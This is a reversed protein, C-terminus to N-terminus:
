FSSIWRAIEWRWSWIHAPPPPSKERDMIADRLTYYEPFNSPHFGRRYLDFWARSRYFARAAEAVRHDNDIQQAIRAEFRKVSASANETGGGM